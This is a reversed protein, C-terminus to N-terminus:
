RDLRLKQCSRRRGFFRHLQESLIKRRDESTKSRWSTTDGSFAREGLQSVCVEIWRVTLASPSNTIAAGTAPANSGFDDSITKLHSCPDNPKSVNPFVKKLKYVLDWPALYRLSTEDFAAHASTSVFLIFMFLPIKMIAEQRTFGTCGAFDM